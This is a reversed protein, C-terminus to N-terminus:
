QAFDAILKPSSPLLLSPSLSFSFRFWLVKGCQDIEALM